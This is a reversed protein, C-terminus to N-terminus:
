ALVRTYDDDKSKPATLTVWIGQNVVKSSRSRVALVEVFVSFRM